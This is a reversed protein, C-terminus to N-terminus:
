PTDASQRSNPTRGALLTSLGDAVTDECARALAKRSGYNELTVPKHLWVDARISGQGMLQWLHGFMGMNGYWAVIPRQCRSMPLNRFGTYALTVPQVTLPRGHVPQQAVAFFTSNFPLVHNGNGSTGEPFLILSHGIELRHRIENRHRHSRSTRRVVFVTRSLKALLGFLPWRAVEAKAVFSADLLTYLVVIDAWSSHNCVYLTPAAGPKHGATRVDIGVVRCIGTHYLRPIIHALRLRLALAAAQVPILALTWVLLAAAVVAARAHRM